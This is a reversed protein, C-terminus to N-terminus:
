AEVFRPHDLLIQAAQLQGQEAAAHLATQGCRTRWNQHWEPVGMRENVRFGDWALLVRMVEVHGARAAVHLATGDWSQANQHLFRRCSLLEKCISAHGQKAAIHLANVGNQGAVTSNVGNFDEEELFFRVMDLKGLLVAAHLVNYGYAKQAENSTVGNLGRFHFEHKRLSKILDPVSPTVICFVEAGALPQVDMAEDSLVSEGHVLKLFDACTQASAAVLSRLEALSRATVEIVEGSMMRVAVDTGRAM